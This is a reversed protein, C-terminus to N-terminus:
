MYHSKAAIQTQWQLICYTSSKSRRRDSPNRCPHTSSVCRRLHMSNSGWVAHWWVFSTALGLRISPQAMRQITLYYCVIDTWRTPRLRNYRWWLPINCLDALSMDPSRFLAVNRKVPEGQTQDISLGWKSACMAKVRHIQETLHLM